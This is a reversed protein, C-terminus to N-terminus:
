SGALEACLDRTRGVSSFGTDNGQADFSWVFRGTLLTIGPTGRFLLYFLGPGTGVVTLSGDAGFQIHAPGAISVTLTRQTVLNTLTARSNPFAHFERGNDFFIGLDTGVIHFQVPFNCDVDDVFTDDIPTRQITPATSLASPIPVLSALAILSVAFLRKM